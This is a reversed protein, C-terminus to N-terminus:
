QIFSIKRYTKKNIKRDQLPLSIQEPYNRM